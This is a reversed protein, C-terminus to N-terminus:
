NQLINKFIHLLTIKVQRNCQFNKNQTGSPQTRSAVLCQITVRSQYSPRRPLQDFQVMLVQEEKKPEM